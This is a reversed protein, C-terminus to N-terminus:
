SQSVLVVGVIITLTGILRLPSFAAEHLLYYAVFTNLIYGISLLPYALSLDARSLVLFWVITSLLYVLLGSLIGLNVILKSAIPIMNGWSFTFEGIQNMGIKFLLQGLTNLIVSILVLSVVIKM